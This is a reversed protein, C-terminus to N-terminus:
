SSFKRRIIPFSLGGAPRSQCVTEAPEAAADRWAKKRARAPTRGRRTGKDPLLCAKM